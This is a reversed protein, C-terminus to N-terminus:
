QLNAIMLAVQVKSVAARFLSTTSSRFWSRLNALWSIRRRGASRRGAIRGQMILHLLRYKENRMVHGFYLLKRKKITLLLYRETNLRELVEENRVRDRWSIRLLRRFVWMEFAQIKDELRQTLTWGEMGYLVIPFVYCRVMKLRLELSLSRDNFVKKMKTYVGRAQAIRCSIEQTMNWKENVMCGLYKFQKCREVANGNLHLSVSTREQKSIVM